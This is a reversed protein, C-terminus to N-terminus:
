AKEFYNGILEHPLYQLVITGTESGRKCLYILNDEPDQYYKGYEYEMGKSAPVPDEQTGAHTKDIVVWLAPTKDPEWGKQTTHAQQCKYLKDTVEYYRRDGAVVAENAKWAPFLAPVEVANADDLEVVKLMALKCIQRAREIKDM